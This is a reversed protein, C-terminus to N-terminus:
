GEECERGAMAISGGGDENNRKGLEAKERGDGDGEREEKGRVSRMVAKQATFCGLLGGEGALGGLAPTQKVTASSAAEQVDLDRGM